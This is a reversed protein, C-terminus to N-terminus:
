GPFRGHLRRIALNAASAVNADKDNTMEEAVPLASSDGRLGLVNLIAVKQKAPETQVYIYILKTQEADFELLYYFAQQNDANDALEVLHEERGLLFLAFSMALKVSKSNERLYRTALLKLYGADGMRGLGEAGFRRFAERSDELATEFIEASREDGIYALAELLKKQLDDAGSVPLVGFVKKREEIGAGYLESLPPVANKVRLHGLALIAEDHVQKNPDRILPILVEGASPDGIKYITRIMEVKIGVDQEKEIADEIAPLAAQARLVGLAMTADKRIGKDSSFLLDAIAKVADESVDVFPEVMLPNYTDSLPNLFVAAKKMDASFGTPPTVYVNVIGQIGIKQMDLSPDRVSKIYAPLARPDNINLLAQAAALKVSSNPDDVLPIIDPVAKTIGNDGLAKAAERRREPDPSKLDYILGDVTRETTQLASSVGVSALFLVALLVISVKWSKM